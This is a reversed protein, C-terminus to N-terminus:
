RLAEGRAFRRLTGAELRALASRTEREHEDLAHFADRVTDRLRELDAGPVANFCAVRVEDGAKVLTGTDVACLHETGDEDTYLLIGPVLPATYDVHRPLLCFSGERGEARV